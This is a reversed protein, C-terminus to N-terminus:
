ARDIHDIHEIGSKLVDEVHKDDLTYYTNKGDRVFRVINHSRLISLQHSVASVSKGLAGAIHSVCVEKDVLLSLIQVRGPDGFVKLLDAIRMAKAEEIPEIDIDQTCRLM